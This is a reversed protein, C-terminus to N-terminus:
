KSLEAAFLDLLERIATINTQCKNLTLHTLAYSEASHPFENKDSLETFHHACNEILASITVTVTYLSLDVTKCPTDGKLGPLQKTPTNM